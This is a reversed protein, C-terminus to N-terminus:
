NIFKFLKLILPSVAASYISGIFSSVLFIGPSFPSGSIVLFIASGISRLFVAIAVVAILRWESEIILRKSLEFAFFGLLAFLLTNIGYPSVGPIDSLAGALCSFFITWSLSSKLATIIVATLIIDPYINFIRFRGLVTAQLLLFLLLVSVSVFKKKLHPQLLEINDSSITKSV